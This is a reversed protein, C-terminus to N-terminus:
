IKPILFGTKKTMAPKIKGSEPFIDGSAVNQCELYKSKNPKVKLL